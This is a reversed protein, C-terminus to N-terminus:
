NSELARMVAHKEWGDVVHKHKVLRKAVKMLPMRPQGDGNTLIVPVAISQTANTLKATLETCNHMRQAMEMSPTTFGRPLRRQMAERGADEM